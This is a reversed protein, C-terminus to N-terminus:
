PIWKYTHYDIYHNVYYSQFSSLTNSFHFDHPLFEEGFIGILHCSRVIADLPVIDFTHKGNYFEPEVVWFGTVPDRGCRM